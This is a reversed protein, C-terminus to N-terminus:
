SPAPPATEKPGASFRSIAAANTAQASPQKALFRHATHTGILHQKLLQGTVEGGPETPLGLESEGREGAAFRWPGNGAGGGGDHQM